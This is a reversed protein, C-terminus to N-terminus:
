PYPSPLVLIIIGQSEDHMCQLKVFEGDPQVAHSVFRLRYKNEFFELQMGQVSIPWCFFPVEHRKTAMGTLM